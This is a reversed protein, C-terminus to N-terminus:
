RFRQKPRYYEFIVVDNNEENAQEHSTWCVRLAGMKEAIKVPFPKKVIDYAIFQPRALVNFLCNGLLFGLWPKQETYNEPVTALQGRLVESAHMRFWAVILPNFSEICYDGRYTQLLAYTKECLERNRKGDKLEVIMPVKGRVVEFVDVFLPIHDEENGALPLEKLEAYTLEDVRKDVGCVRKLTDDHFVVVQGDASLRVDLEIGYGNGVALAFARLSNEPVTKDKTHLGRHAINRGAFKAKQGRSAHGPALLFFPAAAWLLLTRKKM